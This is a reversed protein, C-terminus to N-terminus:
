KKGKEAKRESRDLAACVSCRADKIGYQRTGCRECTRRRKGEVEPADHSPQHSNPNLEIRHGAIEAFEPVPDHAGENAGPVDRLGNTLARPVHAPETLAVGALEAAFAAVEKADRPAVQLEGSELLKRLGRLYELAGELAIEIKHVELAASERPTNDPRM